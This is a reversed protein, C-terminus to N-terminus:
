VIMGIYVITGLLDHSSNNSYTKPLIIRMNGCLVVSDVVEALLNGLFFNLGEFVM